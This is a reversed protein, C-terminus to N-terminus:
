GVFVISSLPESQGHLGGDDGPERLRANFHLVLGDASADIWAEAPTDGEALDVLM